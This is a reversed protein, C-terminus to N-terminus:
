WRQTSCVPWSAGPTWRQPGSGLLFEAVADAAVRHAKGSYHNDTPHVRLSELVHGEFASHLDLFAVGNGSCFAQLDRGLEATIIGEETRQLIPFLVLVFGAGMAHAQERARLVSGSLIERGEQATRLAPGRNATIWNDQFARAYLEAAVLDVVLSHERLSGIWGGRDDRLWRTVWNNAQLRAMVKYRGEGGSIQMLVLDPRYAPLIAEVLHAKEPESCGTVSFNLAEVALGPAARAFARELQPPFTEQEEVYLGFM